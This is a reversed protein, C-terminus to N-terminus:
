GFAALALVVETMDDALKLLRAVSEAPGAGDWKRAHPLEPVAKFNDWHDLGFHYTITGAETEIAVIFHGEFMPDDDPHHAKSRWAAGHTSAVSALAAVLARRHDYLERFTHYGDSAAEKDEARERFLIGENQMASIVDTSQQEDLGLALSLCERVKDLTHDDYGTVDTIM